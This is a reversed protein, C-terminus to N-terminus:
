VLEVLGGPLDVQHVCVRATDSAFSLPQHVLVQGRHLMKLVLAESLHNRRSIVFCGSGNEKAQWQIRYGQSFVEPLVYETATGQANSFTLVYKKGSKPTFIVQAEGYSNTVFEDLITHDSEEHVSGTGHAGNVMPYKLLVTTELGDITIVEYLM